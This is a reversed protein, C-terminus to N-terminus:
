CIRKSQTCVNIYKGWTYTHGLTYWCRTRDIRDRITTRAIGQMYVLILELLNVVFRLREDKVHVCTVCHLVCDCALLRRNIGRVWNAKSQISCADVIVKQNREVFKVEKM